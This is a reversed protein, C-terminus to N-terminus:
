GKLFTVIEDVNSRAADLFGHQYVRVLGNEAIWPDGSEIRDFPAQEEAWKMVAMSEDLREHGWGRLDNAYTISIIRRRAGHYKTMRNINANVHLDGFGYGIVLLRPTSLVREAFMQAYADYPEVLLKDPKNLGTIFPGKTTKRGAQSDHTSQIPRSAAARAPTPFYFLDEWDDEFGFRNLDNENPDRYGFHISGHLHLLTRRQRALQRRSFRWGAEGVDEFGQERGSVQLAQDIFTDYNLTVITLEFASDLACWFARFTYWASHSTINSSPTAFAHHLAGFLARQGSSHLRASLTPSDGSHREARDDSRRAPTREASPEEV